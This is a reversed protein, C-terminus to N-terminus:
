NEQEAGGERSGALLGIKFHEHSVDPKPRQVGSARLASGRFGFDRFM